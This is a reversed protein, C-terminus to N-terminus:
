EEYRLFGVLMTLCDPQEDDIQEEPEADCGSTTGSTMVTVVVADQRLVDLRHIVTPGPYPDTSPPATPVCPDPNMGAPGAAELAALAATCLAEIDTGAPLAYYWLRPGFPGPDGVDLPVDNVSRICSGPPPAIPPELPYDSADWGAAGIRVRRDSTRVTPDCPGVPSGEDAVPAAAAAEADGSPRSPASSGDADAGCAGALLMVAVLPVTLRQQGRGASMGVM